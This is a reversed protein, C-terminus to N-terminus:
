NVPELNYHKCISKINGEILFPLANDNFDFFLNKDNKIILEISLNSSM